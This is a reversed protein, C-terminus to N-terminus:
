LLTITVNLRFVKMKAKNGKKEKDYSKKKIHILFFHFFLSCVKPLRINQFM